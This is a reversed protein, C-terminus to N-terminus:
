DIAVDMLFLTSLMPFLMLSAVLKLLKVPPEDGVGARLCDYTSVILPFTLTVFPDVCLENRELLNEGEEDEDAEADM